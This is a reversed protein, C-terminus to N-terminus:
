VETMVDPLRLFEGHEKQRKETRDDHKECDARCAPPGLIQGLDEDAADSKGNQGPQHKKGCASRSNQAAIRPRDNSAISTLRCRTMMGNDIAANTITNPILELIAQRPQSSNLSFYRTSDSSVRSGSRDDAMAPWVGLGLSDNPLRSASTSPWIASLETRGSARLSSCSRATNTNM